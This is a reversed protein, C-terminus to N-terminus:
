ADLVILRGRCSFQADDPSVQVNEDMLADPVPARDVVRCHLIRHEQHHPIDAAFAGGLQRRDQPLLKICFRLCEGRVTAEPQVTHVAALYMPDQGPHNVVDLRLRAKCRVIRLVSLAPALTVFDFVDPGIM